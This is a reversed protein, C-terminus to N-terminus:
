VFFALITGIIAVVVRAIGIKAGVEPRALTERWKSRPMNLRLKRVGYEYKSITSFEFRDRSVEALRDRLKPISLRAAESQAEIEFETLRAIEARNGRASFLVDDATLEYREAERVLAFVKRDNHVTLVPQLKDALAPIEEQLFKQCEPSEFDVGYGTSPPSVENRRLV